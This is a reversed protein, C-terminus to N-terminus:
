KDDNTIMEAMPLSEIWKCFERWEPLKHNKRQAYITKLQMYNTNCRATLEVGMPCNYALEVNDAGQEKLGILRNLVKYDVNGNAYGLTLMKGLSHMKSQMTVIDLHRYREAQLWWVQSATCNFQVIIGKLFCDHGSGSPRKALKLARAYAPHEEKRVKLSEVELFFEASEYESEFSLGSAVISEELGYVEYNDIMKENEREM